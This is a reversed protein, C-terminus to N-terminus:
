RWMRVGAVFSGYRKPQGLDQAFDASEGFRGEYTWGVYPAFERVIEFRLRLGTEIGSLGSGVGFEPVDQVALDVTIEPELILRQSIPLDYGADLRASVDGDDSLFMFAEVEFWYPALGLVGVALLPRTVGVDGYLADFRAGVQLEWFPRILESYLLQVETLGDGDRGHEGELKFWARTYDGGIWGDANYAFPDARSNSVYEAESVRVLSYIANDMTQASAGIPAAALM